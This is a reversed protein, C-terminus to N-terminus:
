VTLDRLERNLLNSSESGLNWASVLGELLAQSEYESLGDLLPFVYMRFADLYLEQSDPGPTKFLDLDASMIRLARIFDLIPAAGIERIANVAKWMDAVPNAPSESGRPKFGEQESWEVVFDYLNEPVGVRIWAFRRSLAYSIQGLQNRDVTNLTCILRWHKTPAFHNDALDETESPIIEYFDSENDSVNVRYPLSTGQGSLVTFMPGLVKDIPSRNLEDIVTPRDFYRLMVGPVFGIEGDGLPQYGGILDHSSWASSATLMLYGDSSEPDESLTQAVYEALTTKGTGPPGYFIMHRKGSKIAAHMQRYTSEPIGRLTPLPEIEEQEFSVDPALAERYDNVIEVYSGEDGGDFIKPAEDGPFLFKSVAATAQEYTIPLNSAELDAPLVTTRVNSTLCHILEVPYTRRASGSGYEITRLAPSFNSLTEGSTGAPLPRKFGVLLLWEWGPSIFGGDLMEVTALIRVAVSVCRGDRNNIYGITRAGPQEDGQSNQPLEVSYGNAGRRLPLIWRPPKSLLSGQNEWYGSTLSIPKDLELDRTGSSRLTYKHKKIEDEIEAQARAFVKKVDLARDTM